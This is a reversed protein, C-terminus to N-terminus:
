TIHLLFNKKGSCHTAPSVKCYTPSFSKTRDICVDNSLPVEETNYLSVFESKGSKGDVRWM